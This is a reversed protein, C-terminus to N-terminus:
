TRTVTVSLLPPFASATKVTVVTSPPLQSGGGGGHGITLTAQGLSISLDFGKTNETSISPSPVYLGVKWQFSLAPLITFPWFPRSISAAVVPAFPKSLIVAVTSTRPKSGEQMVVPLQVVLIM